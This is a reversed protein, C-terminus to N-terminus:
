RLFTPINIKGQALSRFRVEETSSLKEEDNTSDDTTSDAKIVGDNLYQIARRAAVQAAVAEVREDSMDQDRGRSTWSSRSSTPSAGPSSSVLDQAIALASRDGVKQAAQAEEKLINQATEGFAQSGLPNKFYVYRRRFLDGFMGTGEGSALYAELSREWQSQEQDRQHHVRMASRNKFHLDKIMHKKDTTQATSKNQGSVEIPDWLLTSSPALGLLRAIARFEMKMCEELPQASAATLISHTRELVKAPIKNLTQLTETALRATAADEGGKRNSADTLRRQIEAVSTAQPPAVRGDAERRFHDVVMAGSALTNGTAPLGFLGVVSHGTTDTLAQLVVDFDWWLPGTGSTREAKTSAVEDPIPQEELVIKTKTATATTAPSTSTGRGISGFDVTGTTRLERATNDQQMMSLSPSDSGPLNRFADQKWHLQHRIDALRKGIEGVDMDAVSPGTSRRTTPKSGTSTTPSSVKTTSVPVDTRVLTVHSIGTTVDVTSALSYRTATTGKTTGPTGDVYAGGALSGIAAAEWKAFEHILNSLESKQQGDLRVTPLRAFPAAPDFRPGMSEDKSPQAGRLISLWTSLLTRAHLVAPDTSALTANGTTEEAKNRLAQLGWPTDVALSALEEIIEPTPRREVAVETKFAQACLGEYITVRM